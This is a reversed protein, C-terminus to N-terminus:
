VLQQGHLKKKLRGFLGISSTNFWGRKTPLFAERYCHYLKSLKNLEWLSKFDPRDYELSETRKMVRSSTPWLGLFCGHLPIILQASGLPVALLKIPHAPKSWSPHLFSNRPLLITPASHDQAHQEQPTPTSVTLLQKVLSLSADQPPTLLLKLFRFQPWIM